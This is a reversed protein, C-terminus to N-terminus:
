GQMIFCFVIIACIDLEKKRQHVCIDLKNPQLRLLKLCGIGNVVHAGDYLNSGLALKVKKTADNGCVCLHKRHPM